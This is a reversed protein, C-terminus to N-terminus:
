ALADAGMPGAQGFRRDALAVTGNLFNSEVNAPYKEGCGTLTLVLLVIFTLGSPM